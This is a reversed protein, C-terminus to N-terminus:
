PEGLIDVSFQIFLNDRELLPNFLKTGRVNRSMYEIKYRQM